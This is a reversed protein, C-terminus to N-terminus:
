NLFFLGALIATTIVVVMTLQFMMGENEDSYQINSIFRKELELPLWFAGTSTGSALFFFQSDLVSWEVNVCTRQVLHPTLKLVFIRSSLQWTFTVTNEHLSATPLRGSFMGNLVGSVSNVFIWCEPLSQLVWKLLDEWKMGKIPVFDFCDQQM